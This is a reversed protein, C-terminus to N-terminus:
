LWQMDKHKYFKITRYGFSRLSKMPSLISAGGNMTHLTLGGDVQLYVGVHHIREKKGMAVTCGHVPASLPVWDEEIEGEIKPLLKTIDMPDVEPYGNVEFGFEEKYFYQLLGWCDFTDPGRAAKRWPINLYPRLNM